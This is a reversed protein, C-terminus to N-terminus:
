LEEASSPHVLFVFIFLYLSVYLTKYMTLLRPDVFAVTACRIWKHRNHNPPLLLPVPLTDNLNSADCEHLRLWNSFDRTCRHSRLADLGSTDITIRYFPFFSPSRAVTIPARQIQHAVTADMYAGGIVDHCNFTNRPPKQSKRIKNNNPFCHMSHSVCGDIVRKLAIESVSCAHRRSTRYVSRALRGVRRRAATVSPRSHTGRAFPFTANM